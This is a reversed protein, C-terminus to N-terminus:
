ESPRLIRLPPVRVTNRHVVLLRVSAVGVMVVDEKNCYRYLDFSAREVQGALTMYQPDASRFSEELV